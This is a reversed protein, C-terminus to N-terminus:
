RKLILLRPLILILYVVNRAHPMLVDEMEHACLFSTDVQVGLQPENCSVM